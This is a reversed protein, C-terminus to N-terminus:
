PECARCTCTEAHYDRPDYQLGRHASCRWPWTYMSQVPNHCQMRKAKDGCSTKVALWQCRKLFFGRMDKAEADHAGAQSMDRHGGVPCTLGTNVGADHLAQSEGKNDEITVNMEVNVTVGSEKKVCQTFKKKSSMALLAVLITARRLGM